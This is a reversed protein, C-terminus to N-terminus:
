MVSSTGLPHGPLRLWLYPLPSHRRREEEEANVALVLSPRPPAGQIAVFKAGVDRARTKPWFNKWLNPLKSPRGARLYSLKVNIKHVPDRLLIPFGDFPGEMFCYNLAYTRLLTLLYIQPQGSLWFNVPCTIFYIRHDYNNFFGFDLGFKPSWTRYTFHASFNLWIRM